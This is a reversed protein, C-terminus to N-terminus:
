IVFWTSTDYRPLAYVQVDRDRQEVDFSADGVTAGLAQLANTMEGIAIEPTNNDNSLHCLFVYKLNQNYISAVFQAAVKNDLHGKENRVRNKLYEPYRGGDLMARDYNSEIMLVQAQSMYHKARETIIGMDTGVVFRHEGAEVFFGMNDTADHSTEFATISMGALKFPIEKFIAEHYEKVRRSINHHRLMGNMLKPTCYIHIHKHRRVIKYVYRIHDAHDHTLIIGKIMKPTIGNKALDQFVHEMDVGADILIGERDNGLYSCNGSSGSGFSAFHLPQNGSHEFNPQQLIEERPDITDFDDEDFNISSQSYRYRNNNNTM